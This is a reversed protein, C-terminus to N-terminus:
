VKRDCPLWVVRRLQQSLTKQSLLRLVLVVRLMHSAVCIHLRVWFVRLACCLASLGQRLLRFHGPACPSSLSQVCELSHVTSISAKVILFYLTDFKM